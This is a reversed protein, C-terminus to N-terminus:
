PSLHYAIRAKQTSRHPITSDERLTFAQHEPFSQAELTNVIATRMASQMTKQIIYVAQATDNQEATSPVRLVQAPSTNDPSELFCPLRPSSPLPSLDGVPPPDFTDLYLVSADAM